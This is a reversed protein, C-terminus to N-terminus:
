GHGTAKWQSDSDTLGLYQSDSLHREVELSDFSFFRPCSSPRSIDDNSPPDLLIINLTRKEIYARMMAIANIDLDVGYNSEPIFNLIDPAIGIMGFVRDRRQKCISNQTRILIELM